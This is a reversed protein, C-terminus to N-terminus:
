RKGAFAQSRRNSFNILDKEYDRGEVFYQDALIERQAKEKDSIRKGERPLDYIFSLFALVGCQYSSRTSSKSYQKLFSAIRAMRPLQNVVKYSNRSKYWM